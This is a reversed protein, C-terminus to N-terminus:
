SAGMNALRREGRPIDQGVEMGRRERDAPDATTAAARSPLRAAQAFLSLWPSDVEVLAEVLVEVLAEALPLAVLEVELRVCAVAAITVAAFV